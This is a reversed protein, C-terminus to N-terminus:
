GTGPRRADIRQSPGDGLQAGDVFELAGGGAVVVTRREREIAAGSAPSIQPEGIGIGARDVVSFVVKDGALRRGHLIGVIRRGLASGADGVLPMAHNHCEGGLRPGKVAAM